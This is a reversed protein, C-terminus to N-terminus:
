HSDKEQIKRQRTLTLSTSSDRGSRDFDLEMGDTVSQCCKRKRMVITKIPMAVLTYGVPMYQTYM